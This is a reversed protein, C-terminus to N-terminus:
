MKCLYKFSSSIKKVILFRIISKNGLKSSQDDMYCSVNEVLCSYEVPKLFMEVYIFLFISCLKSNNIFERYSHTLNKSLVKSEHFYFLFHLLISM